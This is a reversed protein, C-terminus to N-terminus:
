DAMFTPITYVKGNRYIEVEQVPNKGNNTAFHNGAEDYLMRFQITKVRQKNKDIKPLWCVYKKNVWVEVDDWDEDSYNLVQLTGFVLDYEARGLAEGGRPAEAKYPHRKAAEAAFQASTRRLNPDSKPVPSPVGDCGAVFGAAALTLIVLASKM